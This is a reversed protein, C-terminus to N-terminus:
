KEEEDDDEELEDLGEDLESGLDDELDTNLDGELNDIDLFDDEEGLEDFGEFAEEFEDRKM